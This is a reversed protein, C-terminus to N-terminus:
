RKLPYRSPKSSVNQCKVVPSDLLDDGQGRQGASAHPVLGEEPWREEDM